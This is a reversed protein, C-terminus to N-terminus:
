RWVNSLMEDISQEVRPDDDSSLAVALSLSDVIGQRKSMLVPDYHWIEVEAQSTSDILTNTGGIDRSRGYFAFTETESGGLMTLESLASYGSLPMGSPLDAYEVYVKKRVPNLLYPKAKNFLELRRTESSIITRVGDKRTNLLNLATLQRIARTIQMASIGFVGATEGAQMEPEDRYLYHLLLLQSSPMLTERAAQKATYREGLAIGLFPLYIQCPSAVFPIRARILSKRRQATMGGIDLVVPLPETEHVRSIHKKIATLNDLEGKPKMFLCPVDDLTARNFEYRDALYYPLRGAGDWQEINIKVGLTDTIYNM